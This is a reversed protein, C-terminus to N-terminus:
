EMLMFKNLPQLNKIAPKDTLTVGVVSGDVRKKGLANSEEVFEIAPFIQIRELYDRSRYNFWLENPEILAYLCVNDNEVESKIEIVNGMNVLYEKRTYGARVTAQYRHCSYNEALAILKEASIYRGDTTEGERALLIWFPTKNM